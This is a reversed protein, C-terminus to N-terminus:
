MAITHCINVVLQHSMFPIRQIPPRKKTCTLKSQARSIHHCISMTRISQSAVPHIFYMVHIRFMARMCRPPIISQRHHRNHHLDQNDTRIKQKTSRRKTIIRNKQDLNHNRSHRHPIFIRRKIPQNMPTRQDLTNQPRQHRFM